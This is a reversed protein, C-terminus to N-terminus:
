RAGGHRPVVATPAHMFVREPLPCLVRVHTAFEHLKQEATIGEQMIVGAEALVERLRILSSPPLRDPALARSSDHFNTGPRCRCSTGNAFTLQAQRTPGGDVGAIVV